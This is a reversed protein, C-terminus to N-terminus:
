RPRAVIRLDVVRREADLAPELTLRRAATGNESRFQQAYADDYVDGPKLRWKKKLAEAEPDTMGTIALEGMRFQPGEEITVGLTLRRTAADPKPSMSSRQRMYGRQRYAGRVERLGVEIKSLDAAEGAKMGLLRDLEAAKLVAAGIWEAREWAYAVGEDVRLTATVGACAPPASGITATPERFEAAWFGKQRYMNRLAVNAVEMLYLRSYERSMLGSAAELLQGEPIAAAGAVRLACILLGTDKVSFLYQNRGTAANNHLAFDVRGRIGREDLVRQLVGTMYTTVEANVPLTGDYTPVRQQVAARLEDDSLRIFNDLMVPMTWAPEEIELTVDMRKGTTVPVSKVAAFLGTAAMRKVAAELDPLAIPQGPELGSLRAVDAEAYRRAGTVTVTGLQLGAAPAQAQGAGWAIAVAMVLLMFMTLRRITRSLM